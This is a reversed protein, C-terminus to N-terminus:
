QKRFLMKHTYDGDIDTVVYYAGEKTLTESHDGGTETIVVTTSNTRTWTGTEIDVDTGETVTATYAGTIFVVTISLGMQAPTQTEIITGSADLEQAEFFVWTGIIEDVDDDDDECGPTVFLSMSIMILFLVRFLNKTFNKMNGTKTLLYNFGFNNVKVTFTLLLSTL